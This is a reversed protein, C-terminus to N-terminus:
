TVGQPLPGLLHCPVTLTVAGAAAGELETNGAAPLLDM